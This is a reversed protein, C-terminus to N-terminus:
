NGPHCRPDPYHGERTLVRLADVHKCTGWRGFGTCNCHAATGRGLFVEYADRADPDAPQDAKFALFGRLWPGPPCTESVLYVCRCKGCGVTLTGDQPQTPDPCPTWECWRDPESKSPPLQVRVATGM